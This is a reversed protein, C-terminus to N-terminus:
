RMTGSLKSSILLVLLLPHLAHIRVGAVPVPVSVRATTHDLQATYDDGTNAQKATQTQRGFCSPVSDQGAFGSGSADCLKVSLIEGGLDGGFDLTKIRPLVEVAFVHLPHRAEHLKGNGGTVHRDLLGAQFYGATARFPDSDTHAASDSSQFNQFALM